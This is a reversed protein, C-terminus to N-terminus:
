FFHTVCENGSGDNASDDRGWVHGVSWDALDAISLDLSRHGLGRDLSRLWLGSRCGLLGGDVRGLLDGDGATARGDRVARSM